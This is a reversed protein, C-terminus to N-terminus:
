VRELRQGGFGAGHGLGGYAEVEHAVCVEVGDPEPLPFFPEGFGDGGEAGGGVEAVLVSGGAEDEVVVFSEEVVPDFLVVGGEEFADLLEDCLVTPGDGAAGPELGIDVAGAAFAVDSLEEESEVVEGVLEVM